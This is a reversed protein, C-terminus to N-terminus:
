CEVIKQNTLQNIRKAGLLKVNCDYLRKLYLKVLDSLTVDTVIKNNKYSQKPRLEKYVPKKLGGFEVEILMTDKKSAILSVNHRNDTAFVVKFGLEREVLHKFLALDKEKIQGGSVFMAYKRNSVVNKAVLFSYEHYNGQPDLLYRNKKAELTVCSMTTHDVLYLLDDTEIQKRTVLKKPKHRKGYRSVIAEIEKKNMRREKFWLEVNAVDRHYNVPFKRVFLRVVGM